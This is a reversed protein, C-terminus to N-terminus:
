SPIGVAVFRNWKAALSALTAGQSRELCLVDTLPLNGGDAHKLWARKVQRVGPGAEGGTKYFMLSTHGSGCDM